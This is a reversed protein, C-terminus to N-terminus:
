IVRDRHFILLDIQERAGDTERSYFRSSERTRLKDMVEGKEAGEFSFFFFFLLLSLLSM